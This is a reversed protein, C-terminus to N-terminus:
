LIFKQLITIKKPNEILDKKQSHSLKKIYYELKLALSKNEIEWAQSLQLPKFTRTYKSATGAVHDAYRRTLNTTFGTYYSNNECHLIYIWYKTNKM